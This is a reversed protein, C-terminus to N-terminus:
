LGAISFSLKCPLLLSLSTLNIFEAVDLFIDLTCHLWLAVIMILYWAMLVYGNSLLAGHWSPTNLSHFYDEHMRLMPVLPFHATLKVDRGSQQLLFLGGGASVWQFPPQIPRLAPRLAIALIRLILDHVRGFILV